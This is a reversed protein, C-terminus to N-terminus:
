VHRIDYVIIETAYSSFHPPPALPVAGEVFISLPFSHSHQESITQGERVEFIVDEYAM